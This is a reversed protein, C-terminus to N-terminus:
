VLLQALAGNFDLKTIRKTSRWNIEMINEEGCISDPM